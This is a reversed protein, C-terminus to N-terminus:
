DHRATSTVADRASPADSEVGSRAAAVASTVMRRLEHPKLGLLLGRRVLANLERAYQDRQDAM